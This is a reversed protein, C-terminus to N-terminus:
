TEKDTNIDLFTGVSILPTGPILTDEPDDGIVAVLLIYDQPEPKEENDYAEQVIEKLVNYNGIFPQSRKGTEHDIFQFVLKQLKSTAAIQERQEEPISDIDVNAIDLELETAPATNNMPDREWHETTTPDNNIPYEKVDSEWKKRFKQM